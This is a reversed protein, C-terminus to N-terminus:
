EDHPESRPPARHLHQARARALVHLHCVDLHLDAQEGEVAQVQVALHQQLPREGLPAGRQVGGDGLLRALEHEGRGLHGAPGM